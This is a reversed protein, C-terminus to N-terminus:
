AAKHRQELQERQHKLRRQWNLSWDKLDNSCPRSLRECELVVGPSWVSEIMAIADNTTPAVTWLIEGSTLVVRHTYYLARHPDPKLYEWSAAWGRGFCRDVKVAAEPGNRASM